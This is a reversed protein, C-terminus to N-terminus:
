ANKAKPGPGLLRGESCEYHAIMPTLNQNREAQTVRAWEAKSRPSPGRSLSRRERTAIRQARAM